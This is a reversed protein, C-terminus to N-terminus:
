HAKKSNVFKIFAAASENVVKRPDASTKEGGGTSKRTNNIALPAWKEYGPKITRKKRVTGNEAVVREYTLVDEIDYDKISGATASRLSVRPVSAAASVKAPEGNKTKPLNKTYACTVPREGGDCGGNFEPQSLLLAAEFITLNIEEGAAADVWNDVNVYNMLDKKLGENTGCNPVKMAELVKFKYGVITSTVKKDKTGDPLTVQTNDPNSPDGLPRLFALKSRKSGLIEPDINTAAKKPAAAPAAAPAEATAVPAEPAAMPAEKVKDKNINLAM